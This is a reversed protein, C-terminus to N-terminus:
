PLRESGPPSAARGGGGTGASPNSSPALSSTRVVLEPRFVVQQHVHEHGAESEALLLEAAV